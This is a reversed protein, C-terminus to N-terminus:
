LGRNVLAELQKQKKTDLELKELYAKSTPSHPIGYEKCKSIVTGRSLKLKDAMHTKNGGNEHYAELFLLREAKQDSSLNKLILQDKIELISLVERRLGRINDPYNKKMLNLLDYKFLRSTHMKGYVKTSFHIAILPIDEVRDRLPPIKIIKEFRAVFDDRLLHGENTAAILKFDGTSKSQDSGLQTYKRNEVVRLLKVQLEKPLAGIEDLFLIGDSVSEILGPRDKNAGTFSGKIHGFLYSDATEPHIAGANRIHYKLDKGKLTRIEESLAQAVLEKGTGTESLILISSYKAAQQIEEKVRSMPSTESFVLGRWYHSDELNYGDLSDVTDNVIRKLKDHIDSKFELVASSIKEYNKDKNLISFFEEVEDTFKVDFLSEQNEHISNFDFDSSDDYITESIQVYNFYIDTLVHLLHKIFDKEDLMFFKLSKSQDIKNLKYMSTLLAAELFTLEKEDQIKREHYKKDKLSVITNILESLLDESYTEHRDEVELSEGPGDGVVEPEISFSVKKVLHITLDILEEYSHDILENLLPNNKIFATM